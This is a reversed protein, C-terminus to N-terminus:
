AKELKFVGTVDIRHAITLAFKGDCGGSDVDCTVVQPQTSYRAVAHKQETSCYPCKALVNVLIPDTAM